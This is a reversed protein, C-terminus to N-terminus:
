PRARLLAPLTMRGKRSGGDDFKQFIPRNVALLALFAAFALAVVHSRWRWDARAMGLAIQRAIREYLLAYLLFGIALCSAGFLAGSRWPHHAMMQWATMLFFFIPTVGHIFFVFLAPLFGTLALFVILRSLGVHFPQTLLIGTRGLGGILGIAAVVLLGILRPLPDLMPLLALLVLQVVAVWGSIMSPRM